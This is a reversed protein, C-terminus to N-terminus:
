LNRPDTRLIIDSIGTQNFGKYGDNRELIELHSGRGGERRFTDAEDATILGEALVAAIRQEPIKWQEGETFCQKLHPFDTFPAMCHVGLEALQAQSADFDFQCELHHMGALLFSEGHLRCWLGVTGLESPAPLPQHAFDDAVEEPSLDVDAFITLGCDRQELVQAGWGAERGAYFCERCTFGLLELTAILQGFSERGSRYTHHDHNAWGVGLRQQRAYQVRAAHNRSMWYDREAQFWLGCARAVGLDAQAAEILTRAAAFGEADTGLNRPRNRFRELHHAAQTVEEAPTEPLEFGPDGHREIIGLHHTGEDSVVATRTTNGPSGEINASNGCRDFAARQAAFFDDVSDVKMYLCNSAAGLLVAPFLGEDNLWANPYDPSPRFGAAELMGTHDDGALRIHDVWDILRTGTEGLLRRGLAAIDANHEVFDGFLRQTAQAAAPQPKWDFENPATETQTAM